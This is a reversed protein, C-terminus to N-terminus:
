EFLDRSLSRQEQNAARPHLQRASDWCPLQSRSRVNLHLRSAALSQAGIPSHPRAKHGEISLYHTVCFKGAALWSAHLEGTCLSRRPCAKSGVGTQKLMAAM